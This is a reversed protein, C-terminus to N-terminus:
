APEPNGWGAGSDHSGSSYTISHFYGYKGLSFFLVLVEEMGPYSSAEGEL